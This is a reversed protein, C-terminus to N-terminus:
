AAEKKLLPRVDIQGTVAASILAMRREQLLEIGRQAETTLSDLKSLEIDLYEVIQQMETSPMKFFVLNRIDGLGLFGQAGGRSILDIQVKLLGSQLYNLLFKALHESKKTKFLAVNKNLSAYYLSM